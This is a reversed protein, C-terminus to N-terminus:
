FGKALQRFTHGAPAQFVIRGAQRGEAIGRQIVEVQRLMLGIQDVGRARGALGLAHHDAVTFDGHMAMGHDLGEAHAAVVALQVEIRDVEVGGALAQQRRQQATGAHHDAGLALPASFLDALQHTLLLHTDKAEGWAVAALQGLVQRSLALLQRHAQHDGATFRQGALM